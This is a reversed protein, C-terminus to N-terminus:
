KSKMAYSVVTIMCGLPFIIMNIIVREETIMAVGFTAFAIFILLLITVSILIKEKIGMNGKHLLAITKWLLYFFVGDAAFVIWVNKGIVNGVM